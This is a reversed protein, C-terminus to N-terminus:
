YYGHATRMRYFINIQEKRSLKYIRKYKSNNVHLSKNGNKKFLYNVITKEYFMM